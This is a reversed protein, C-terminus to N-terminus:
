KERPNVRKIEGIVCKVKQKEIEKPKLARRLWSVIIRYSKNFVISSIWAIFNSVQFVIALSISVVLAGCHRAGVSMNGRILSTKM